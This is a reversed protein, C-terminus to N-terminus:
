FVPTALTGDEQFQRINRLVLDAMALRSDLTGSGVHPLLVVNEMTLLAEPVNPEDTFVDLGAGALTGAALGEILASEDIVSGRGINILFGAPGLATLVERSILGHSEPGGPAAVVLVDSGAALESLSSVFRYPVDAAPRRNHYSIRMDFGELRRAIARGIRGLGVVGVRRGTVKTALPFPGTGWQGRRVFRDAASLGRMVDILLGVAMDAVCDTLVDPTNSVVIGHERAAAVDTADYGAGFNVIARLDPLARIQDDTLGAEGTTVAIGIGAGARGLVSTPTDATFHVVAFERALHQEMLSMMPRAQLIHVPAVSAGDHTSRTTM